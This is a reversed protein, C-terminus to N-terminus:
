AIIDEQFKSREPAFYMIATPAIAGLLTALVISIARASPIYAEYPNIMGSEPAANLRSRYFEYLPIWLAPVVVSVGVLQALTGFLPVWALITWSLGKRSGEMSMVALTVAFLDLLALGYAKGARDALFERFFVVIMCLFVDVKTGTYVYRLRPYDLSSSHAACADIVSDYSDAVISTIYQFILYGLPVLPLALWFRKSVAM